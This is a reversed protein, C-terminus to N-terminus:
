WLVSVKDVYSKRVSVDLVEGYRSFLSRLESESVVQDDSMILFKFHIPLIDKQLCERTVCEADKVRLYRGMYLVGDLESIAALACRADRMKVFGYLLSTCGKRAINVHDVDGFQMFLDHLDAEECLISLDGVFLKGDFAM